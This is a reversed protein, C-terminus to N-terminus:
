YYFYYSKKIYSGNYKDCLKMLYKKIKIYDKEQTLLKEFHTKERKTAQKKIYGWVHEATNNFNGEDIDVDLIKDIYDYFERVTCGDKIMKSCLKYYKYNREMCVYKYKGWEDYLFSKKIKGQLEQVIYNCKVASINKDKVEMMIDPNYCKITKYYDMFQNAIITKSHAGAKKNKDQQSYHIKIPGDKEQWTSRVREMIYDIDKNYNSNCENHLNDFIVPVGIQESIDLVDNVSYNKEDNEIVLRNRVQQSLRKYNSIFRQIAEEKNGYVGGVHLIIKNTSDIGLSDLFRAHYELDEVARDVVAANASNLVTYQGPHMSVRMNNNIIYEGIYKLEKIYFDYWATKNVIHSGLPIIDSSIRFLKINHENNYKLIELLDTLNNKVVSLLLDETFDKLLVRRNTKANIGLPLCAYGIRM